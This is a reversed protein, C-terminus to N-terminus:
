NWKKAINLLCPYSKVVPIPSMPPKKQGLHNQTHNVWHSMELSELWLQALRSATFGKQECAFLSPFLSFFTNILVALSLYFHFSRLSPQSKWAVPLPYMFCMPVRALSLTFCPSLCCRLAPFCGYISPITAFARRTGYGEMLFGTKWLKGNFLGMQATKSCWLEVSVLSWSIKFPKNIMDNVVVSASPTQSRAQQYLSWSLNYPILHSYTVFHFSFFFFLHLTCVCSSSLIMCLVDPISFIYFIRWM